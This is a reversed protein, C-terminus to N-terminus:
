FEQPNEHFDRLMYRTSDRLPQMINEVDTKFIWAGWSEGGGHVLTLNKLSKVHLIM